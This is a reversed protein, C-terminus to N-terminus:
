VQVVASKGSGNSGSILTVFLSRPHPSSHPCVDPVKPKVGCQVLWRLVPTIYLCNLCIRAPRWFFDARSVLCSSCGALGSM